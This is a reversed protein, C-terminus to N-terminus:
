RPLSPLHGPANEIGIDRQHALTRCDVSDDTVVQLEFRGTTPLEFAEAGEVVLLSRRELDARWLSEPMAKAAAFAAVDDAEHLLDLVEREHLRDLAQGSPGAYLQAVGVVFPRLVEVRRLCRKILFALQQVGDIDRFAVDGTVPLRDDDLAVRVHHGTM